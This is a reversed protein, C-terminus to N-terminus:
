GCRRSNKHLGGISQGDRISDLVLRRLICSLARIVVPDLMLVVIALAWAVQAQVLLLGTNSRM